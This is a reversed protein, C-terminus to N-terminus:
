RAIRFREAELTRIKEFELAGELRRQRYVYWAGLLSFAAAAAVILLIFWAKRWNRNRLIRRCLSRACDRNRYKWWGCHGVPYM